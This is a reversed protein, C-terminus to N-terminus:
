NVTLEVIIVAARNVTGINLPISVEFCLCCFHKIIYLIQVRFQIQFQQLSPINRTTISVLQLAHYTIVNCGLWKVKGFTKTFTIRLNLLKFGKKKRQEKKQESVRRKFFVSPLKLVVSSQHHERHCQVRKSSTSMAYNYIYVQPCSPLLPFTGQRYQSQAKVHESLSLM